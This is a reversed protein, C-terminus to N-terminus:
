LPRALFAEAATRDLTILEVETDTGPRVRTHHQQMAVTPSDALVVVGRCGEQEMCARKVDALLKVCEEELPFLGRLDVLVRFTSGRTRELARSMAQAIDRADRLTVVELARASLLRRDPDHEVRWM